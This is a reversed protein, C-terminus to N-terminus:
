QNLILQELSYVYVDVTRVVKKKKLCARIVAENLGDIIGSQPLIGVVLNVGFVEPSRQVLLYNVGEFENFFVILNRRALGNAPNISRLVAHSGNKFCNNIRNDM